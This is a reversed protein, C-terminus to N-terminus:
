IGIQVHRFIRDQYFEAQHHLAGTPVRQHRGTAPSAFLRQIAGVSFTVLKFICRLIIIIIIFIITIITIFTHYIIIVLFTVLIVTSATVATIMFGCSLHLYFVSLFIGIVRSEKMENKSVFVFM